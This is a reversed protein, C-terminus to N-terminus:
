HSHAEPAEGELHPFLAARGPISVLELNTEIRQIGPIQWVEGLLVHQLHAHDAIRFRALVDWQGTVVHLEVLEPVAALADAIAALDAGAGVSIALHAVMPYGAQAWGVQVAYGRIVGLRELRAIREGVAPPSLRVIQSLARQSRRADEGLARLIRRDVDDLSVPTVPAGVFRAMSSMPAAPEGDRTTM